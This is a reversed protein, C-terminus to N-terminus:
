RKEDVRHGVGRAGHVRRGGRLANVSREIARAAGLPPAQDPPTTAEGRSSSPFHETNLKRNEALRAGHGLSWAGHRRGGHGM